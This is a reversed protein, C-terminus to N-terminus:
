EATQGPSMPEFRKKKKKKKKKKDDWNIGIANGPTSAAFLTGLGVAGFLMQRRTLMKNMALM